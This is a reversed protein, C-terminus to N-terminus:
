EISIVTGKPAVYVSGAGTLFPANSADLTGTHLKGGHWLEGFVIQGPFDLALRAGTGLCVECTEPPLPIQFTRDPM